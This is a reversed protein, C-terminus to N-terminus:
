AVTFKNEVYFTSTGFINSFDLKTIKMQSWEFLTDSYSFMKFIM